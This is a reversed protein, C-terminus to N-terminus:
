VGGAHRESGAAKRVEPLLLGAASAPATGVPVLCRDDPVGAVREWQYADVAEGRPLYTVPFTKGGRTVQLTLMRNPDGQLSDMAVSYSVVDGDRLGAKAAESGPLLGHVTKEAGILSRSDFGPEFRRIKKTTRRFCPGYDGSEPLMLGGALMARHVAPGEEGIERRLMDLWVAETVPQGTRSREITARILDDISRKGASARGIKGNLVAFYLGGRDYPLVRIRSDEWFRPEIQDDPTDNLANTYYRSATKNLDELFQAPTLMGARWPLLAQYYVANGESYWKGLGNATWTHTMEHGLTGKLSDGTVGAGYTVIFSHTLATGGGANMPNFRLFVRYPPETEDRFFRSMWAHLKGTWQMAPRPDFPPEGLWASSFGSMVKGQPERKLHGAMFLSHNLRAVPGAPLEVDGDGYSSVAAAGAGMASLDWQIAIRYATQIQPSILFMNGVSSFGDGDIRPSLPPGGQTLPVNEVPVRYKVTLEGKVARTAHWQLAGAPTRSELRVPGMGDIVALGEVSQPKSLGPLTTSLALLPAGAPVDMGPVRITVAVEGKGAAASMAGPQILVTMRPQPEVSAASEDLELRLYDWVVGSQLDGAPVTFTMTNEGPTLMAADFKLTREQWLGRDTNYRIADTNRLPANDADSGSGIAGASQGNVSVALGGRMGNVGALGVRLAARGRSQKPMDFKITWVTERGRGYVKWPGRQDTQPYEELSEAKVWGFRQNAPDKAEPNVFSLNTAHPVEEFFWDKRWDSKGVTYTLDNPFLLAYRLNWGWLWYNQGDGKLFESASRNPYGIEWVQAGFRVPTWVLKGLNVTKGSEVSVSARAFEGHVGDAWARLTYTGPRAKEITFKGDEAGDNFFQYFRADHLWSGPGQLDEHTLGVILNPLKTSSGKPALPDELVIQGTVNGREALPTYDVGKVWGYPWKANEKKAQATADRWLENANAAWSAPVVPNGATAALTQLEAATVPKPKDLSNAYVFIPGVVRHWEEGAAIPVPSGSYHGSHWYDLIIPEPNGNDGFHADLDLRTPGGSLYEITPNIFWMGVHNKTSSWGYAKTYYQMGSYSYKHEVSNKYVGKSMIRQEKAHVVVGTGWDTPAAELMNRDKDVTIWDFEQNLRTIYRDEAGVGAAPYSAPHSLISYVYIGSDGKGLSYRIEIDCLTGGGPAGRTMMFTGGSIGQISVEARTGGNAAPDITIRNTVSPAGQPNHEWTGGSGGMMQMGRYLFSPMSGSDKNVTAKVIGNDLIWSSGNDAVTVRPEAAAAHLSILLTTIAIGLLTTKMVFEVIDRIGGLAASCHGDSIEQRAPM